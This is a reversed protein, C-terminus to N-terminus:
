RRWLSVVDQAARHHGLMVRYRHRRSQRLASQRRAKPDLRRTAARIVALDSAHVHAGLRHYMSLM